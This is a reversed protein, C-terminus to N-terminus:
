GSLQTYLYYFMILWVIVMGRLFWRYWDTTICKHQDQYKFMVWQGCKCKYGLLSRM